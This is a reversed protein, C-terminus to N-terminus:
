VPRFETFPPLLLYIWPLLIILFPAYLVVPLFKKGTPDRFSISFIILLLGLIYGVLTHFLLNRSLGFEHIVSHFASNVSLLFFGMSMLYIRGAVDPSCTTGACKRYIMLSRLGLVLCVAAIVFEEAIHYAM